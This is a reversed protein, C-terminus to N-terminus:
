EAGHSVGEEGRVEDREFELAVRGAEAIAETAAPPTGFIKVRVPRGTNRKPVAPTFRTIRSPRADAM